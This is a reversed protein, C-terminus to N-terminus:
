RTLDFHLKDVKPSLSHLLMKGAAGDFDDTGGTVNVRHDGQGLAGRLRLDGFGGIKGNLHVVAHCRLAHHTQRCTGRDRGVRDGRDRPNLLKDKFRFKHQGVQKGSTTKGLVSFHHDFASASTAFLAAALVALVAVLMLKRM